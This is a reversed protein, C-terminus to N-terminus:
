ADGPSPTTTVVAGPPPRHEACPSRECSARYLAHLRLAMQRRLGAMSPELALNQLEYPDTELDYLERWSGDYEVFVYREGHLALYRQPGGYRAVNRGKWELMFDHRWPVDEGRLLPVLSRGDQTLGPTTGALEAFTSALDVNAVLRDDSVASETWPTRIVLPVRVAEEYPWTKSMLRHEGWLFGNDSAFVVITRDLVGRDELAQVIRGVDRDLSRVSQLMGRRVSQAAGRQGSTMPHSRRYWPKDSVDAEDFSPSEYPPLDEYFGVDEPAAVAPRHPNSPTVYAFFPEPATRVFDGTLQALVDTEYGGPDNPYRTLRGNRNLTFGYYQNMPEAALANWESWGPPIGCAGQEPYGNLYKGFLGTTYGASQLWTAVTSSDDFAQAGGDQGINDLVGTHHAYQGTLYSARSPCCVPTTVYFRSFTVGHGALLRQVNPMAWMTDFRQDDSLVFVINPREGGTPRGPQPQARDLIGACGQGVGTGVAVLAGAVLTTALM